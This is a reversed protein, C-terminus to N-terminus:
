FCAGIIPAYDDGDLRLVIHNSHIPRPMFNRIVRGDSGIITIAMNLVYSLGAIFEMPVPENLDRYNITGVGMLSATIAMYRATTDEDCFMALIDQAGFFMMKCHHITDLRLDIAIQDRAHEPMADYDNQLARVEECDLALQRRACHSALAAAHFMSLPGKSVRFLIGGVSRGPLPMKVGVANEPNMLIASPYPSEFGDLLSRSSGASSTAPSDETSAAVAPFDGFSFSTIVNEKATEMPVTEMPEDDSCYGTIQRKPRPMIAQIQRQVTKSTKKLNRPM